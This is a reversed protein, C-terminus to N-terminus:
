IQFEPALRGIVDYSTMSVIFNWTVLRENNRRHALGNRNPPFTAANEEMANVVEMEWRFFGAKVGDNILLNRVSSCIDVIWGTVASDYGKNWSVAEGIFRSPVIEARIVFTLTTM